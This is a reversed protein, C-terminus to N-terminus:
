GNSNVKNNPTIRRWAHRWDCETRVLCWGEGDPPRPSGDFTDKTVAHEIVFADNAQIEIKPSAPSLSNLRRATVRQPAGDGAPGERKSTM